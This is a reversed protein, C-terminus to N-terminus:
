QRSTPTFLVRVNGNFYLTVANGGSKGASAENESAEAGGALRFRDAEIRGTPGEGTVAGPAEAGQAALDIELTETRFSYGDSTTIRVAGSLTLTEAKRQMMGEDARAQLQRGDALTIEGEPAELGIREALTTEPIAAVARLLFPEGGPTSGAFRPSDLRLGAGLRALEEATFFDSVYSRERGAVFILALILLAGIPLVFKALRVFRSYRVARAQRAPLSERRAM